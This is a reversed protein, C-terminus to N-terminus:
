HEVLVQTAAASPPPRLRHQALQAAPWSQVACPCHTFACLSSPPLQLPLESQRTPTQADPTQQEAAQSAAHSAQLLLPVQSLLPAHSANSQMAGSGGGTVTLKGALSM